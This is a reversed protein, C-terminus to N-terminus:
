WVGPLLRYRVRQAYEEYGELEEHLTRDELATRLIFLLVGIVGPIFAWVSGLMIPTALNFLLQGVYGPHRVFRYPGGTAVAHGRDHQIRVIKSFFANATMAWVVIAFSLAAAAAAVIQAALPMQGWRDATWGNRWDLGAVIPQGITALGSFSMLVQDWTKTGRRREAREALLEPKTPILIVAMSVQWLFWLAVYVWGMVWDLRGAPLFVTVAAFAVGVIGSIIWRRVGAAVDPQKDAQDISTSADM